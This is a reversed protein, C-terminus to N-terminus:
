FYRSLKSYMNIITNISNISNEVYILVEANFNLITKSYVILKIRFTSVLFLNEKLSNYEKTFHENKYLDQLEIVEERIRDVEPSIM